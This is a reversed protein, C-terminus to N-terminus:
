LPLYISFTSGQGQKSDCEIHGGLLHTLEATIYLGLGTGQIASKEATSTRMFENFLKSQEQQSIGVGTDSIRIAVANNGSPPTGNTEPHMEERFSLETRILIKGTETYKTANSMLNDIIQLIKKRDSVLEINEESLHMEFELQKESASFRWAVDQQQILQNIKVPQLNLNVKGAEIASLDLLENIIDLLHEGNKKVTKLASKQDDPLLDKSKRIIINTFGIISNLPTRLEHAINSLFRTKAQNAEQEREKAQRYDETIELALHEAKKNVSHLAFLVYFLLLDVMVGILLVFLPQDKEPNKYDLPTSFHLTWTRGQLSIQRSFQYTNASSELPISKNSTFLLAEDTQKEGDYIQFDVGKDDLGLIGQMLNGARFAAYVWGIFETRRQELTAPLNKNKYVPLYTLFGIQVDDDTEQVLTILGSTAAKGHDRARKMAARRMENSWMDYGFARQNRWDFPELFIISSYEDRNGPPKISYDPFGQKKISEIHSAKDEPQVPIAFGLGQIGPWYQDIEISEVYQKWGERTVPDSSNVFAVGGRLTQEYIQLREKIASTIEESRFIFRERARADVQNSAISYAAITLILSIFLIAWAMIPSHIISLSKKHSFTQSM